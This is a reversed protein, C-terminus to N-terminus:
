RSKRLQGIRLSSDRRLFPQSTLIRSTSMLSTTEQLHLSSKYRNSATTNIGLHCGTKSLVGAAVAFLSKVLVEFRLFSAVLSVRTKVFLIIFVIEMLLCLTIEFLSTFGPRLKVSRIRVISCVDGAVFCSFDNQACAPNFVFDTFTQNLIIPTPPYYVEHYMPVTPGLVLSAALHM